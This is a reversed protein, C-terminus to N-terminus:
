MHIPYIYHAGRFCRPYMVSTMGLKTEDDVL